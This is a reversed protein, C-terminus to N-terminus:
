DTYNAQPSFAVSNTEDFYASMEPSYKRRLHVTPQLSNFLSFIITQGRRMINCLYYFDCIPHTPSSLVCPLSLRELTYWRDAIQLTHHPIWHPLCLDTVDDAWRIVNLVHFGTPTGNIHRQVNYCTRTCAVAM